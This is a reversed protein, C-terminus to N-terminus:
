KLESVDGVFYESSEDAWENEVDVLILAKQALTM